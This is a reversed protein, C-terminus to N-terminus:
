FLVLRIKTCIILLISLTKQHVTVHRQRMIVPLRIVGHVMTHINTMLTEVFVTVPYVMTIMGGVLSFIGMYVMVADRFKSEPMLIILPMVWLGTNCLQFPFTRWQYEFVLLGDVVSTGIVETVLMALWFFGVILRLTKDKADRFFVCLMVTLVAVAALSILHFLGYMEPREIMASLFYYAETIFNRVPAAQQSNLVVTGAIGMM